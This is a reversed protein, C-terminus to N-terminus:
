SCPERGVRWRGQKRLLYEIVEAVAGRGGTAGTVRRAARRVGPAADAVAVPWACAEMVPVDPLDDGVYAAQRASLGTQRLIEEFGSRKDERGSVVVEIGLERARTMLAAGSRGSLIAVRGGSAQWAKVALGDRVHFRKTTEGEPSTLIGGDTLVGDVDLVILKISTFDM